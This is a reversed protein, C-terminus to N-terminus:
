GLLSHSVLSMAESVSLDQMLWTFHLTDQLDADLPGHHHQEEALSRVANYAVYAFTIGLFARVTSNSWPQVEDSLGTM